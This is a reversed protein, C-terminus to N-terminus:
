LKKTVKLSWKYDPHSYVGDQKTSYLENSATEISALLYYPSETEQKVTLVVTGMGMRENPDEPNVWIAEYREGLKPSQVPSQGAPQAQAADNENLFQKFNKIM